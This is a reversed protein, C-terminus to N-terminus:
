KYEVKIIEYEVIGKPTHVEIVDGESKGIAARAVPSTYAILGNDLDAEYESVLTYTKKKTTELDELTVTAGFKVQKSGKHDAPDLIEALSIKAELDQIRGEVLSQKEKAAKYEANEKLDGHERAVAIENIIFPRQVGKLDKLEEEM